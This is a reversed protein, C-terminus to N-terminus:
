GPSISHALTISTAYYTFHLLGSYIFGWRHNLLLYPVIFGFIAGVAMFRISYLLPLGGFALLVHAGGFLFACWLATTRVSYGNENFVLVFALILLQQFFIEITKPLFYWQTAVILEPPQWANQWQVEPLLPMLYAAFALVLGFALLLLGYMSYRDEIFEYRRYLHWFTALTVAAWFLYYASFTFPSASYEVAGAAPLFVYYVIDSAIWLAAVRLLVDAITMNENGIKRLAM